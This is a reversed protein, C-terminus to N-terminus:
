IRELEVGAEKLLHQVGHPGMLHGIGVALCVKRGPNDEIERLLGEVMDRNRQIHLPGLEPTNCLEVPEFKRFARWAEWVFDQPLEAMEAFVGKYDAIAGTAPEVGGTAPSIDSLHLECGARTPNFGEPFTAGDMAGVKALYAKAEENYVEEYTSKSMEILRVDAAEWASMYRMPPVTDLHITGMLTVLSNTFIAGSTFDTM